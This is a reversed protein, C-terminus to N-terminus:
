AAIYYAGMPKALLKPIHEDLYAWWKRETLEGAVHIVKYGSAVKISDKWHDKRMQRMSSHFKAGDTEFDTDFGLANDHFGTVNYNKWDLPRAFDCQFSIPRGEWQLNLTVNQILGMRRERSYELFNREPQTNWVKKNKQIMYSKLASPNM